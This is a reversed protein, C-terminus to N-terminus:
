SIQGSRRRRLIRTTQRQCRNEASTTFNSGALVSSTSRPEAKDSKGVGNGVGSASSIVITSVSTTSAPATSVASWPNITPPPSLFTQTCCHSCPPLPPPPPPPPNASNPPFAPPCSRPDFVYIKIGANYNYHMM